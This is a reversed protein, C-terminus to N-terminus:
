SGGESEIARWVKENTLPMDLHDIGFPELADVVANVVAPTAGITASEGVGKVGIPNHPSPTVTSDTEFDPLDNAGPLAYDNMSGTTLNGNDDYNASEFLAAGIGQAIGGHIQGEVIMPNIQEGCDDVAVFELIEVEGTDADVEVVAIHTGFPYTFNEPDYYSTAELGPEMGDPIDFGLYAQMAIDQIGLSQDPAGTVHFEGGEYELDDESTELQHAAIQRAKDVVDRASEAVAAGGVAASRSGYTGMGQPVEDTDGQIVEIDEMPVGLEESAVQSLTTRHGQGQDATGAYVAVKGSPRLRVVGAEWGGAQAGLDGVAKSPSFGASEVFNAMGVGIYRGDERLREQRDRYDDYDVLELARDMAREYEGSDYVLAVSTQFPFEDPGILNQRRVEAPDVDIQNAAVDLTRETVYIGEARGAGRYASVPATHTFAGVVRCHIAPIDYQSSLMSSYLISPTSVAFLLQHAGLGAYTEVRLGRITGDDDIAMEAETVHDRGHSGAVYDESRTAQWKVDRELQKACWATITEAPYHYIKKGFGGGVEPAVIELKHEPHGLSATSMLTRHIHPNQSNMWVTLENSGPEYSAAAARPEVANPIIRPQELEVEAITDAAEFAEDVADADGLEFDFSVNDEAEDHVTPEAETAEKPDTVADLRDYDVDIHDLAEHAAYRDDGVVVAVPEGVHRVKDTAMIRYQPRVLDPLQWSNPIDNPIGSDEIDAGTFAAIVDDRAEAESTDIGEIRAHAFRSRLIAVHAADPFKDDTFEAEGTLLSTDEEREVASGFVGEGADSDSSM